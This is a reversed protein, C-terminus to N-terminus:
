RAPSSGHVPCRTTILPDSPLHRLQVWIAATAAASTASTAAPQLRCCPVGAAESGALAAASSLATSCACFCMFGFYRHGICGSTTRSAGPAHGIQPMVSTFNSGPGAASAPSGVAAVTLSRALGEEVAIGHVRVPGRGHRHLVLHAHVVHRHERVRRSGLDADRGRDHVVEAHAGFGGDHSARGRRDVGDAVHTEVLARTRCTRGRASPQTSLRATRVMPSVTRAPCTRNM